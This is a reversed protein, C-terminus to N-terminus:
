EDLGDYLLCAWRDDEAEECAECYWGDTGYYMNGGCEECVPEYEEPPTTKWRDYTSFM